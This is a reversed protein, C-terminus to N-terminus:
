PLADVVGSVDVRAEDMGRWPDGMEELRGPVDGLAFARAGVTELEGWTVPAAVPAGPLARVSYPAIATQGWGNRFVDVFVRGGRKAKRQKLTFRDESGGVLVSGLARALGRVVDFGVSPEVPSVVHAGKSGTVMVFPSLGVRELLGKLAFAGERVVDFSADGPPDLDFVLRDPRDLHGRRSSWAHVEVVGQDALYAETASSGLVVLTEAGSGERSVKVRDVWAPFHDPVSRQYFGEKDVGDPFRRMLVPRGEVYSSRIPAVLAAYRALDAKTISDEPFLVKEPRQIEVTRGELALAISM